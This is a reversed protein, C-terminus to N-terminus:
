KELYVNQNSYAYYHSFQEHKFIFFAQQYSFKQFILHFILTPPNKKRLIFLSGGLKNSVSSYTRCFPSLSVLIFGKATILTKFRGRRLVTSVLFLYGNYLFSMDQSVITPHWPWLIQFFLEQFLFNLFFVGARVFLIGQFWSQTERGLCWFALIRSLHRTWTM